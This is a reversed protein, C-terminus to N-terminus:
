NKKQMIYFVYGYWKSYKKHMKMEEEESAISELSQPDKCYREKFAPLRKEILSYYEDWWTNAPLPISDLIDYGTEEIKKIKEQITGISPYQAIWWKCVEQPPNEKLWSVETVALYGNQKLFRKWEKLAKEFGMIYASGESWIIDFSEDPFDLDRMSMNKTNIKNSFGEKEVSDNLQNLFSDVVDVAVINGDSIRALELTQM